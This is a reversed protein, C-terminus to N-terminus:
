FTRAVTPRSTHNYRGTVAYSKEAPVPEGRYFIAQAIKMGPTLLLEHHSLVNKLQITLTGETWGPDAWGALSANLGARAISSKLRMAFALDHPLNFVEQTNVLAFDGPRLRWQGESDLPLEMFNPTQKSQLDVPYRGPREILLSNGLTLDISAGNVHDLPARVIDLDILDTLQTYTLLM